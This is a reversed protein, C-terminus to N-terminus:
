ATVNLFFGARKDFASPVHVACWYYGSEQVDDMRVTFIHRSTDDSILVTKHHRRQDSFEVYDSLLWLYGASLYKISFAYKQHYLCPIIVSQGRRVSIEKITTVDLA